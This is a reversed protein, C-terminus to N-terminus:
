YFGVRFHIEKITFYSKMFDPSLDILNKLVEAALIRLHNQHILVENNSNQNKEIKLLRALSLFRM